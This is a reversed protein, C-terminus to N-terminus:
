PQAAMAQRVVDVDRRTASGGQRLILNFQTLNLRDGDRHKVFEGPGAGTLVRAVSVLKGPTQKIHTRVYRPVPGGNRFFTTSLGLEETLFKFDDPDLIAVEDTTTLPVTIVKRKYRTTEYPTKKTM